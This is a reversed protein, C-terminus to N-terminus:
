FVRNFKEGDPDILEIRIHWAGDGEKPPKNWDMKKQITDESKLMNGLYLLFLLLRSISVVLFELSNNPVQLLVRKGVVAGTKVKKRLFTMVGEDPPSPQADLEGCSARLTYSNFPNSSSQPDEMPYSLASLVLSTPNVNLKPNKVTDLKNTMESQQQKLDAEFKFLRADQSAMFNSVLGGAEDICSSAYYVFAQEPNVMCYQTDHPGDSIECSFVIKNMPVDQPLSIAKVLKAFDRLDNWSENDYLALDEILEWSEEASKYRLM